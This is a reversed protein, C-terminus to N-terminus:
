PRSARAVIRGAAATAFIFPYLREFYWLKAFYFGIPAPTLTTGANTLRQLAALGREVVSASIAISQALAELALGTEEISAPSAGGGGWGGDLRQNSVLWAEGRRRAEGTPEALALASVVRATAYTPNRDGDVHQNGFWLPVWSGDTRQSRHLYRLAKKQARDIQSALVGRLLPRWHHFALLAHATLDPASRDFELAGWGRCFTPIGGDRNQVGCLWALGAEAARRVEDREPALHHLAILAGATDDADPVGGPLDTWAWAGPAAGTYPHVRKGQQDLLWRLVREREAAEMQSSVPGGAALANVSLTTVWTALNEDIPWSGDARRSHRLFALGKETVQHSANGGDVLSMVVFGTLPVAELYGGSSPQIGRLRRLTRPRTLWRVLFAFPNRPTRRHFRVQGVAILAPLAYSVVQLDLFRFWARPFAAFEFPLPRVWRWPDRGLRGAIACLTLIPVAFTRDDGYRQEIATVLQQPELGGARTTIWAAARVEAARADADTRGAYGCAAWALVTTSINGISIVTDGWSGDPNQHEALWHLGSLVAERDCLNGARHLAVVAVATSLASSALGGIWHGNLREALLRSRLQELLADATM